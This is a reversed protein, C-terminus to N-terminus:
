RTNSGMPTLVNLQGRKITLPVTEIPEEPCRPPSSTTTSTSSRARRGATGDALGCITTGPMIGMTKELELLM